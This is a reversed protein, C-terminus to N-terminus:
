EYHSNWHNIFIKIFDVLSSIGKKGLNEYWELAEDELTCLFTMMMVHEHVVYFYDMIKMFSIVHLIALDICGHFLGIHDFRIQIM